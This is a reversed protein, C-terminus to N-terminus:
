LGDHGGGEHIRRQDDQVEDPGVDDGHGRGDRQTSDCCGRGRGGGQHDDLLVLGVAGEGAQQQHHDGDVVGHAEHEEGGGEANGVGELLAADVGDTNQHLRHHLDDERQTQASRRAEREVLQFNIKVGAGLAHAKGHGEHQQRHAQGHDGKVDPRQVAAERQQQDAHHGTRHEAVDAGSGILQHVAEVAPHRRHVDEEEHEATCLQIQVDEGVRQHEEDAHHVDGEARQAFNGTGEDAAPGGVAAVVDLLVEADGQQRLSAHRQAHCGLGSLKGVAM